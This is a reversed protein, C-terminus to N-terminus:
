GVIRSHSARTFDWGRWMGIVCAYDSALPSSTTRDPRAARQARVSDAPRTMLLIEHKVAHHLGSQAQSLAAQHGPNWGSSMISM